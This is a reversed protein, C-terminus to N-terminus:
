INSRCIKDWSRTFFLLLTGKNHKPMSLESVMNFKPMLMFVKFFQLDVQIVFSLQLLFEIMVDFRCLLKKM